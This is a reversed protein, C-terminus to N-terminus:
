EKASNGGKKGKLVVIYLYVSTYSQCSSSICKVLKEFM